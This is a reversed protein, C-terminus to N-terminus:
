VNEDNEGLLKLLDILEHEDGFVEELLSIAPGFGFHSIALKGVGILIKGTFRAWEEPTDKELIAKHLNALAENFEEESVNSNYRFNDSM